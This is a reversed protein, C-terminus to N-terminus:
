IYLVFGYIYKFGQTEYPFLLLPSTCTSLCRYRRDSHLLIFPGINDNSADKPMWKARLLYHKIYVDEITQLKPCNEGDPSSKQDKPYLLLM